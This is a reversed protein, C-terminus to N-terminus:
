TWPPPRSTGVMGAHAPAKRTHPRPDFDWWEIGVINIRAVGSPVAHGRATAFHTLDAAAFGSPVAHGVTSAIVVMTAQGTGSVVAQGFTSGNLIRTAQARGSPTAHGRTSVLIIRVGVAVGSPVAHGAVAVLIILNGTALGSPVGHGRATATVTLTATAVGSPVAHGRATATVIGSGSIVTGVAQGSPVSAGQGAGIVVHSAVATGSPIARGSTTGFNIFAAVTARGHPVAHGAATAIVIVDAAAQGSPVAHGQADGTVTGAIAATAQGSPVAHGDTSGAIVVIAAANGSPVAHGDTTGVRIVEAVARGSSIAHGSTTGFNVVGSTTARGHPVAHGRASIVKVTQGAAQGSPVARGDATGFNILAGLVQGAPVAHGQAAASIVGIVASGTVRGHEVAHGSTTGVRILEPVAQGSPVARGDAAGVVVHSAVATAFPVAHGAAVAIRIVTGTAQGFPIARGNTTGFNVVATAAFGFTVAHGQAAANVVHSAVAIGSPVAHGAAAALRIVTGAASGQAVAHGQAAGTVVGAIVTADARGSPIAHGDTTGFNVVATAAFGFVVAHGDTSGVVVHSAIAIGSPVAHGASTAVVVHSAVAVGSPVAHGAATANRIVTGAASGSPVAHGSSSGFNVVSGAAQGSPVARGDSAALVLVTPAATGFPVAHGQAAGTVVTTSAPALAILHGSHDDFTGSFFMQRSYTDATPADEDWVGNLLANARSMEIQRMAPLSYTQAAGPEYTWFQVLITDAVTTTVALTPNVQNVDAVETDDDIPSTTDRNRYAVICGHWQNGTVVLWDYSSPESGGAAKWWTTSNHNSEGQTRTTGLKTWGSPGTWTPDAGGEHSLFAVLVDDEVVGAPKNITLTTQSAAEDVCEFGVFDAPTPAVLFEDYWNFGTCYGGIDDADDGGDIANNQQEGGAANYFLGIEGSPLEMARVQNIRGTPALPSRLTPTDDTSWTVGKDTSVAHQLEGNLSGTGPYLQFFAHFDGNSHRIVDLTLQRSTDLDIVVTDSSNIKGWVTGVTGSTGVDVNVGEITDATDDRWAIFVTPTSGDLFYQPPTIALASTGAVTEVNTDITTGNASAASPDWPDIMDEIADDSGNIRKGYLNKDTTDPSFIYFHDDDGLVGQVGHNADNSTAWVQVPTGGWTGGPSRINMWIDRDNAPDTEDGSYVCVMSGDSRLAGTISQEVADLVGTDIDEDILSWDDPTAHGSTNYIHLKPAAGPHHFVLIRDNPADYILELAEADNETPGAVEDQVVWTDGGDTSKWMFLDNDTEAAEIVAYRVGETTVIPGIKAPSEISVGGILGAPDNVTIEPLTPYVDLVTGDDRVVRFEITDGDNLFLPGDAVRHLLICFELEVVASAAIAVDTGTVGTQGVGDGSNDFTAGSTTLLSTSAAAKDAYQKSQVAQIRETTVMDAWHLPTVHADNWGGSNLNAEIRFGDTVATGATEEVEVRLRTRVELDITAPNVNEAALYGSDANLGASDDRWRWGKMELVAAASPTEFEIGSVELWSTRAGASKDADVRVRLDGYDSINDTEGASLTFSFTAFGTSLGSETQSAILTTAQYLGVIANITGPQGGGTEGKALRYRVIHGTSVAPDTLSELTVEMIDNSPDNESQVLAADDPIAQNIKSWLPATVWNNVTQDGDPRQFEPM